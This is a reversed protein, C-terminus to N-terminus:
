FIHNYLEFNEIKDEIHNITLNYIQESVNSDEERLLSQCLELAETPLNFSLRKIILKIPVDKNKRIDSLILKATKILLSLCFLDASIKIFDSNPMSNVNENIELSPHKKFEDFYQPSVSRVYLPIHNEIFEKDTMQYKFNYYHKLTWAHVQVSNLHKTIYKLWIEEAEQSSM